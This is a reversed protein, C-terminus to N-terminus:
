VPATYATCNTKASSYAAQLVQTLQIADTMAYGKAEKRESHLLEIFRNVTLPETPPIMDLPVPKTEYFEPLLDSQLYARLKTENIGMYGTICFSGKNGIIEVHNELHAAMFSTVAVGQIEGPFEAIITSIDDQGNGLCQTMRATVMTPLGFLALLLSVGHTALDITVGGATERNDYWYQPLGGEEGFAMGHVRRVVATGIKGLAGSNILEKALAYVGYPLADLSIMFKVGAREVAERIKLCEEVTPALVKECFIHKGARAAACVVKCHLTTQCQVIVADSLYATLATELDPEFPVGLREAADRGRQVDNDWVVTFCIEDRYQELLFPLYMWTHVHWAGLLALRIM